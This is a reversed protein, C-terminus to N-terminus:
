IIFSCVIALCLRQVASVEDHCEGGTVSRSQNKHFAQKKQECADQTCSGRETGITWADHWLPAIKADVDACCAQKSSERVIMENFCLSNVAARRNIRFVNGM